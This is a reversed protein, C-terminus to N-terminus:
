ETLYQFLFSVGLSLFPFVISLTYLHLSKRRGVTIFHFRHEFSQKMIKSNLTALIYHNILSYLKIKTKIDNSKSTGYASHVSM